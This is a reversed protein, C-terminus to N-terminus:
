NCEDCNFNSLCLDRKAQAAAFDNAWTQAAADTESDLAAQAAAVAATYTGQAALITNAQNTLVFAGCLLYAPATIGGILSAGCALMGLVATAQAAANAAQAAASAAAVTADYTAQAAAVAALLKSTAADVDFVFDNECQNCSAQQAAPCPPPPGPITHCHSDPDDCDTTELTPDGDVPDPDIGGPIARSQGGSPTAPLFPGNPDALGVVMFYSILQGDQFGSIATAVVQVEALPTIISGAVSRITVDEAAAQQRQQDTMCVTALNLPQDWVVSFTFPHGLRNTGQYVGLGDIRTSLPYAMDEQLWPSAFLTDFVSGQFAVFADIEAQSPPPPPNGVPTTDICDGVAVLHLNLVLCCALSVMLTKRIM